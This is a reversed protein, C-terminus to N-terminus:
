VIKKTTTQVINLIIIFYCCCYRKRNGYYYYCCNFEYHLDFHHVRMRRSWARKNSVKSRKRHFIIASVRARILERKRPSLNQTVRLHFANSFSWKFRPLSFFVFRARSSLESLACRLAILMPQLFETQEKFLLSVDIHECFIFSLITSWQKHM